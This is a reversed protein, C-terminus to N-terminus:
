ASGVMVGPLNAAMTSFVKTGHDSSAFIDGEPVFSRFGALNVDGFQPIVDANTFGADIVAVNIGKGTFGSLVM